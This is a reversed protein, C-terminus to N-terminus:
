QEPIGLQKYFGMEKLRNLVSEDYSQTVDVDKTAPNVTALVEKPTEFAQRTWTMPRNGWSLFDTIYGKAEAEDTQTFEAFKKSADDTNTWMYNQAELTAAAVVLVTSPNQQLYDSRVAMGSRGWPLKEEKLDILINFGQAKMQSELAADVPACAVSGGKLAAIRASQGGVQTIVVDNPTLGLGKLALLVAGHSTGGFTSVAVQKGRLQDVGTVNKTCVLQDTLIVANVSVIKFPTDTVVSNIASSVGVVGMDLQNAVLAQVTKGDGEFGIVEADLGYKKYLGLQFALQEAYQSPESTVSLGIKVRNKEPAPLQVAGPSGGTAGAPGTAQGGPTAAGGGGGGGCAAALLGAALAVALWGHRRPQITDNM